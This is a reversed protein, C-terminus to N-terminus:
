KALLKFLLSLFLGLVLLTAEFKSPLPLFSATSFLFRGEDSSPLSGWVQLLLM